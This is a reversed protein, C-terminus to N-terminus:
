GGSAVLYGVGRPAAYDVSRLSACARRLVGTLACLPAWGRARMRLALDPGLPALDAGGDRVATVVAEDFAAADPILAAPSRATLGASLDGAAIVVVRDGVDGQAAITAGMTHLAHFGEASSLELGLHAGGVTATLLALVALDGTLEDSDDLGASPPLAARVARALPLAAPTESRVHPLGVGALSATGGARVRTVEGSALLIRVDHDPLGAVVELVQRQVQDVGDPVAGAAGPVLLPASPLVAAGVIM